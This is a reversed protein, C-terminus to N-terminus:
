AIMLLKEEETLGLAKSLRSFEDLSFKFPEDLRKYFTALSMNCRHALYEKNHGTLYCYSAIKAKLERPKM